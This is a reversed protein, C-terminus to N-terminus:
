NPHEVNMRKNEFGGTGTGTRQISYRAGGIVIPIETTKVNCVNKMERTHELYKDRNVSENLKVIRCTRKNQQSDRFRTTQGLNSSRNTDLYRLSNHVDCNRPHIRPQASEM